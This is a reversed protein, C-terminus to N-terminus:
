NNQAPGNQHVAPAVTFVVLNVNSVGRVDGQRDTSVIYKGVQCTQIYKLALVRSIKHRTCCGLYLATFIDPTMRLLCDIHFVDVEQPITITLKHWAEQCLSHGATECAAM